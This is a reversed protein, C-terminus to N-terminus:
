ASCGTAGRQCRPAHKLAKRPPLVAHLDVDVASTPVRVGTNISDLTLTLLCVLGRMGRGSAARARRRQKRNSRRGLRRPGHDSNVVVDVADTGLLLEGPKADYP